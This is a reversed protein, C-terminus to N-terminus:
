QELKELSSKISSACNAVEMVQANMEVLAVQASMLQSPTIPGSNLYKLIDKFGDNRGITMARDMLEMPQNATASREVYASQAPAVQAQVTMSSDQMLSPMSPMASSFDMDFVEIFSALAGPLM